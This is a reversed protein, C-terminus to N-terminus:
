MEYCSEAGEKTGKVSNNRNRGFVQTIKQWLSMKTCTIIFAASKKRKRNKRECMGGQSGRRGTKEGAKIECM